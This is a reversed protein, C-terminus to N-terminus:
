QDGAPITSPCGHEKQWAAVEAAPSLDRGVRWADLYQWPYVVGRRNWWDGVRLCPPSLAFHLHCIHSANGTQGVNGILAGAAVRVGADIRPAIASLHSGYYRVGDDGLLSVSLGGRAAGLSNNPDFTDVRSVELVVGNTAARVPSGCAAFIDTAPYLAHTHGYDANANVPFVYHPASASATPSPSPTAAAPSTATPTVAPAIGTPFAATPRDKSGCGAMALSFALALVLVTGHIACSTRGPHRTVGGDHLIAVLTTVRGAERSGHRRHPIPQWRHIRVAVLVPVALGRRLSWPDGRSCAGGM